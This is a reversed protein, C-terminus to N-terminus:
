TQPYQEGVPGDCSKRLHHWLDQNILSTLMLYINKHLNALYSVYIEEKRSPFRELSPSSGSCHPM